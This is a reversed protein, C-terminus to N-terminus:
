SGLVTVPSTSETIWSTLGSPVTPKVQVLAGYAVSVTIARAVGVVGVDVRELQQRVTVQEGGEPM